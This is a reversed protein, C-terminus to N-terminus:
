QRIGPNKEYQNSENRSEDVRNGASSPEDRERCHAQENTRPDLRDPGVLDSPNSDGTDGERDVERFAM